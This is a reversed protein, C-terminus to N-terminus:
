GRVSDRWLEPFNDAENELAPGMVPRAKYNFRRGDRTVAGGKELLEPAPTTRNGSSKLAPGIVVSQSVLEFAFFILRKLTGEHSSPPQGPRSVGRRRRILSRARTRVFAGARSLRPRRTRDIARKVKPRDFFMSYKLNM